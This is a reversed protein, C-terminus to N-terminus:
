KIYLRQALERASLPKLSIAQPNPSGDIGIVALTAQHPLKVPWRSVGDKNDIPPHKRKRPGFPNTAGEPCKIKLARECHEAASIATAVRVPEVSRARAKM